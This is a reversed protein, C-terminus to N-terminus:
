QGFEPPLPSLLPSSWSAIVARNGDNQSPAQLSEISAASRTAERTAQKLDFRANFQREDIGRQLKRHPEALIRVGSLVIRDNRM